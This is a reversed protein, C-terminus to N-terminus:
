NSASRNIGKTRSLQQIYCVRGVANPNKPACNSNQLTNQMMKYQDFSGGADYPNIILCYKGCSTHIPLLYIQQHTQQNVSRNSVVKAGGAQLLRSFGAERAKDTGILVRWGYFSGKYGPDTQLFLVVWSVTFTQTVRM